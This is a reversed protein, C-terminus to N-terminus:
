VIISPTRIFTSLQNKLLSVQFNKKLDPKQIQIIRYKSIQTLSKVNIKIKSTM